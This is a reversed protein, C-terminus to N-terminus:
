EKICRISYGNATYAPMGMLFPVGLSIGFTGYAVDSRYSTTWFITSQNSVNWDNENFMPTAIATFGSNNTAGQNPAEWYDTGKARLSCWASDGESSSNGNLYAVLQDYDEDSPVKWGAPALKQTQVAYQNYVAGYKNLDYYNYAGTTTAGWSSTNDILPIATGDSYKTTKLNQVLWTQFGITIANYINGDNDMVKETSYQAYLIVDSSSIKFTAGCKYSTGSGNQATNWGIFSQNNKVLKGPNALVTVTQGMTYTATSTPVSGSSNQNGNYTVSYNAVQWQAYLTVDQNGIKFTSGADLATGSGDANTNWGAFSYGSRTLSSAPALVTVTTGETYTGADSPASGGTNNNGNYKVVYTPILKWQAYLTVNQNGMTFTSKADRATGSGDAVTNWGAFAYGSKVLSSAPSLVIVTTGEAYTGEDSPVLGGTNNNGNYTVTYTPILKWQAYLTINANGMTFTSKADRAIGSGDAATNWGIFSYGTRVLSSAPALVSVAAGETYTEADGPVTGGTNKNGNYTVTYRPESYKLIITLKTKNHRSANDVAVLNLTDFKGETLNENLSYHGTKGTVPTMMKPVGNNKTWYVSDVEGPDSVSVVLDVAATTVITGSLPGSVPTITPGITDLMTPDFTIAYKLASENAQLSSDVATVVVTNATGSVLGTVPITWNNDTGRAGTFSKSGLTANVSLVGSNDSCVVTITYSSSNTSITEKDPTIRTLVPETMDNDYKIKVSVSDKNKAASSDTAVIKITSYSGAAIGKVMGTWLNAGSSSKKLDFAVGDRYGKVTCGSDDVCTVAVECSDAPTITDKSPSKLVIVPPVLDPKSIIVKSITLELTFTDSLGSPDTAIVPILHVGTDSIDPTWQYLKGIISDKAPAQPLLSFTLNDNDPDSCYDSVDLSFLTEPQTSRQLTVISWKPARNHSTQERDVITITGNLISPEGEIYGTLSVAYIGPDSFMIPYYTTDVQGKFSKISYMENFDTGKTIRLTSVDIYQTLNHIMCIKVQKGVTDTLSDTTINGSSSKFELAVFSNEPGPPPSPVKCVLLMLGMLLTFISLLRVWM